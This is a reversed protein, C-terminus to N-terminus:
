GEAGSPDAPHLADVRGPVIDDHGPIPQTPQPRLSGFKEEYIRNIIELQKESLRTFDAYVAFRKSISHLFGM